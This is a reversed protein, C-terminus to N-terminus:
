SSFESDVPDILIEVRRNLSRGQTTSNDAVPRSEGYGIASLRGPSVGQAALYNSVSLARRQSLALNYEDSGTADAHGLVSINTKNFEKLVVSVSNLTEYFGPKIESQDVDFTIDSPMNLIINDGSRTVSVGSAALRERLKAQQRDQYVGVGVGIAAGAAAGIAAGKGVNGGGVIAGAIAGAAAGAAAGGAGSTVTRSARREGTYPNTTCGLAFIALAGLLIAKRM